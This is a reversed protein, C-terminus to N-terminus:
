RVKSLDAQRKAKMYQNTARKFEKIADGLRVFEAPFAIGELDAKWEANKEAIAKDLATYVKALNENAARLQAWAENWTKTANVLQKSM